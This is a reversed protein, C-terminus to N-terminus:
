NLVSHRPVKSRLDAGFTGEILLLSRLGFVAGDAKQLAPDNFTRLLQGLDDSGFEQYESKPVAGDLSQYDAEISEM